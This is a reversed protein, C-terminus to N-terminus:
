EGPLTDAEAVGWHLLCEGLHLGPQLHLLHLGQRTEGHAYGPTGGLLCCGHVCPPLQPVQFTQRQQAATQPVPPCCRPPLFLFCALIVVASPKIESVGKWGPGWCGQGGGALPPIGPEWHLSCLKERWGVVDEGCIGKKKEPMSPMRLASDGLEGCSEDERDGGLEKETKEKERRKQRVSVNAGQM